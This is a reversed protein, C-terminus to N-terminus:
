NGFYIQPKREWQLRWCSLKIAHLPIKIEIEFRGYIVNWVATTFRSATMKSGARNEESECFFFSYHSFKIQKVCKAWLEYSHHRKWTQWFFCRWGVCWESKILKFVERSIEHSFERCQFIASYGIWIIFFLVIELDLISERIKVSRDALPFWETKRSFQRPEALFSCVCLTRPRNEKKM